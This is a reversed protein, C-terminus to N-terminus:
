APIAKGDWAFCKGSDEPKLQNIVTLLQAASFEPTFLKGDPVNGQFPKSLATDVTGPHLGAITLKPFRRQYEIAINKILMNLAAKSSRYSHWGGLRNDQISGVRASIAGFFAPKNRNMIPLFYKAVLAPGLANVRMLEIFNESTLQKLSKEPQL